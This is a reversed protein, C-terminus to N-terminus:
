YYIFREHYYDCNIKDAINCALWDEIIPHDQITEKCMMKLNNLISLSRNQSIHTNM